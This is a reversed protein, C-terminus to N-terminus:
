GHTSLKRDKPAPPLFAKSREPASPVAVWAPAQQIREALTYVGLATREPAPLWDMALRRAVYDTISTAWPIDPDDTAGDPAFRLGLGHRALDRLPIGHRLGISLAAAYGEVLGAAASGHKGWRILVERLTGDASANATLLFREGGITAM